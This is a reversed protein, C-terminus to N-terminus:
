VSSDNQLSVSEVFCSGQQKLEKRTSIKLSSLTCSINETYKEAQIFLMFCLILFMLQVSRPWYSPNQERQGHHLLLLMLLMCWHTFEEVQQMVYGKLPGVACIWYTRRISLASEATWCPSLDDLLREETRSFGRPSKSRIFWNSGICGASASWYVRGQQQKCM